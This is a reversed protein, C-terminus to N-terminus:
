DNQSVEKVLVQDDKYIQVASITYVSAIHAFNRMLGIFTSHSYHLPLYDGEEDIVIIHLTYM